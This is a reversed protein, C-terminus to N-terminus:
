SRIDEIVAILERMTSRLLRIRHLAVLRAALPVTRDILRYTKACGPSTDHVWYLIVGLSYLWLLEPLQARLERDIKLSSGDILEGYMATAADRAPSSEKSFPSLPSSPEAAYKFFRAAFEHYPASIDILARLTGLLRASFDTERGLVERCAALHDAQNSEYFQQVLEEKSSFYYYANGTSVDAERAIARMTTAEYGHERFLRLAAAVIAARTQEARPTLELEAVTTLTRGPTRAPPRGATPGPLSGTGAAARGPGVRGGAADAAGTAGPAPRRRIRRFIAINMLHLAGLVLLVEGIKVSLVGAAQPVSTIQGSPRMALVVFGLTLLYFGVVLLRNVAEALAQDGGFVDRLFVRGSRSLVLGAGVTLSVSIALYVLYTVVAGM